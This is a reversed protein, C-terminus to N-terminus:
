KREDCMWLIGENSMLRIKLVSTFNTVTHAKRAAGEEAM